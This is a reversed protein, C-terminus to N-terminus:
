DRPSPSTYLLCTDFMHCKIIASDVTLFDAGKNPDSDVTIVNHGLETLVKAYLNGIGMGVILSTKM